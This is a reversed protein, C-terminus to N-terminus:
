LRKDLAKRRYLEFDNLLINILIGGKAFNMIIKGGKEDFILPVGAKDLAILIDAVKAELEIKIM